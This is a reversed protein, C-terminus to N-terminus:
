YAFTSRSENIWSRETDSGSPIQPFARIGRSNRTRWFRLASANGNENMKSALSSRTGMEWSLRATLIDRNWRILALASDIRYM